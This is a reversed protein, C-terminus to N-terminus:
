CGIASRTPRAGRVLRQHRRRVRREGPHRLYKAADPCVSRLKTNELECWGPGACLAGGDTRAGGPIPGAADATSGADNETGNGGGASAKGASGGTAPGGGSGGPQRGRRSRGIRDRRGYRTRGPRTRTRAAREAPNQAPMRTMLPMRRSEAASCRFFEGRRHRYRDARGVFPSMTGNQGIPSRGGLLIKKRAPSADSASFHRPSFSEPPIVTRSNASYM